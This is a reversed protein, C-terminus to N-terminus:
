KYNRWIVDIGQSCNKCFCLFLIKENFQHFTEAKFFGLERELSILKDVSSDRQFKGGKKQTMLRISGGQPSIRQASFVEMNVQRFFKEFPAVTHYDVHEHYITDFFTNCYVDVLYGVEFVFIGDKDLWYEVGKVLLGEQMVSEIKKM